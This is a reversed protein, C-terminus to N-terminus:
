ITPALMPIRERPDRHARFDSFAAAEAAAFARPDVIRM